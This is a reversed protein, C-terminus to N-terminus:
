FLITKTKFELPSLHFQYCLHNFLLGVVDKTNKELPHFEKYPQKTIQELFNRGNSSQQIQWRLMENQSIFEGKQELCNICTFGGHQAEFVSGINKLATHCHICHSTGPTIGLQSFLKVMFWTLHSLIDVTKDNKLDQDLFFIANSVVNFIGEHHDMEHQDDLDHSTAIKIVVEFVFCAMYFAQINNRISRSEWILSWDRSSPMDSNLYKKSPSVQIKIMHALELITGKHHRGGGQGGYCYVTQLQGSRLLVTCVMDRAKTPVKKIIIGELTKM